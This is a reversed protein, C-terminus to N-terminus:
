RRRTPVPNGILKQKSPALRIARPPKAHWSSKDRRHDNESGGSFSGSRATPPDLDYARVAPADQDIAVDLTSAKSRDARAQFTATIGIGVPTRTHSAVPWVSMRFPKALRDSCTCSTSAALDKSRGATKSEHRLPSRKLHDPM